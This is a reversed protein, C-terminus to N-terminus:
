FPINIDVRGGYNGNNDAHGSVTVSGRDTDHTIHGDVREYGHWDGSVSGGIRDGDAGVSWGNESASGHVGCAMLKDGSGYWPFQPSDQPEWPFRPIRHSDDHGGIMGTGRCMGCNIMQVETKMGSGHCTSCNLGTQLDRGTRNCTLCPTLFQRPKKGMGHCSGCTAIIFDAM